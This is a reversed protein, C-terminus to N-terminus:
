DECWNHENEKSKILQDNYAIKERTSRLSIDLENILYHLEAWDYESINSFDITLKNVM